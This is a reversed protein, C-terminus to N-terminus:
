KLNEQLFALVREYMTVENDLHGMGHGERSILLLEHPVQHKKLESVLRRSEGVSAVPDDKGHGVFVPITIQDVFRLPSIEEFKEQERKPDGLRRRLIAYGPNDAQYYKEDRMVREWDYIGALAVSCRYLDKEFTAGCVALYAGFSWGMIAVRRPDVKRTGLLTRTAATVDDHMKRFAWDDEEPFQWGYGPSGRYNPQMVAYGQSALFQVEPDFGWADRAHPGGHPLVILPAPHEASAGEPLTVYMDMPLGDNTKYKMIAMPRMREPEIWPRTAKVLGLARTELDVRYYIVPQRDSYTMVFFIKEGRDSGIIRVVLGPFAADLVKQVGRYAETFWVVRPAHRQYSVGLIQKSVPHRYLSGRVDYADDRVLTEGPAGTTADMFQLVRPKGAERVGRVVVQGPKEGVALLDVVDLDVPCKEWRNNVLRHLTFFGDKSTLGFELEGLQDCLYGVTLGGEMGPYSSVIHKRNNERVDQFSSYSVDARGLDIMPGTNLSTNIRVVRGERGRGEEIDGLIWLLPNRRNQEPIGVLRTASGQILPYGNNLNGVEATFLGEGILKERALSFLLRKDDLWAINYVDRDGRGFLRELELTKLDCVILSYKDEGAAVLAAFHTGAENLIPGRLLPGRFFDMTPIPQDAPVPTVRALDFRQAAALAGALGLTSVVSVLFRIRSMVPTTPHTFFRAGRHGPDALASLRPAGM